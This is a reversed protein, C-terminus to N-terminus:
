PCPLSKVNPLSLIASSPSFYATWLSYKQNSLFISFTLEDSTPKGRFDWQPQWGKTWITILAKDDSINYGACVPKSPLRNALQKLFEERGIGDRQGALGTGYLLSDSIIQEFPGIMGFKLGYSFWNVVSHPDQLDLKDQPTSTSISKPTPGIQPQTSIPQWAPNKHDGPDNTLQTLNSGDNNMVYIEQNGDRNSSFALQKGDPSWSPSTDDAPNKSLNVLGSGDSNVLYIESNGDRSTEFAIQKGDPSWDFRSDSWGPGTLNTLTKGDPTAIFINEHTKCDSPSGLVCYPSGQPLGTFAIYEGNPSWRIMSPFAAKSHIVLDQLENDKIKTLNVLTKDRLNMVYLDDFLKREPSNSIFALRSGDPSWSAYYYYGWGPNNTINTLNTGDRKVTFIDYKGNLNSGFAISLSDPSWSLESFYDSRAPKFNPINILNSGDANIISIKNPSQLFTFAIKQGDPSWYLNSYGDSDTLRKKGSADANITWIGKDPGIFAIKGEIAPTPIQSPSFTPTPAKRLELPTYEISITAPKGQYKLYSFIVTAFWALYGTVIKAIDIFSGAKKLINEAFKEVLDGACQSFIEKAYDAFAQFLENIRLGFENQVGGFDLRLGKAIIPKFIDAVRTSFLFLKDASDPLICGAPAPVLDMVARVFQSSSDIVLSNTTIQGRLFVNATNYPNNPVLQLDNSQGPLLFASNNDGGFSVWSISSNTIAPIIEFTYSGPSGLFGLIGLSIGTKDFLRFVASCNNQPDGPIRQVEIRKDSDNSKVIWDGCVTGNQNLSTAKSIGFPAIPQILFTIILAASISRTTKNRLM